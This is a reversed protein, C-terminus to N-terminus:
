FDLSLIQLEKRQLRTVKSHIHTPPHIWLTTPTPHTSLTNWTSGSENKGKNTRTDTELYNPLQPDVPHHLFPPVGTHAASARRMAKLNKTNRCKFLVAASCLPTHPPAQYHKRQANERAMQLLCLPCESWFSLYGDMRHLLLKNAPALHLETEM